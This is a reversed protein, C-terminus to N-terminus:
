PHLFSGGSNRLMWYIVDPRETVNSLALPWNIRRSTELSKMGTRDFSGSGQKVDGEDVLGKGTVSSRSGIRDAYGDGYVDRLIQRRGVRNLELLLLIHKYKWIQEMTEMPTDISLHQLTVNKHQLVDLVENLTHNSVRTPYHHGIHISDSSFHLAKLSTNNWLLDYLSSKYTRKPAAVAPNWSASDGRGDMDDYGDMSDFDMSHGEPPKCGRLILSELAVNAPPRCFSSPGGVDYHDDHLMDFLMVLGDEPINTFSLDLLKFYFADNRIISWCETEPAMEGLTINSHSRRKKTRLSLAYMLKPLISKYFLSLSRNHALALEQLYPNYQLVSVERDDEGEKWLTVQVTSCLRDILALFGAYSIDCASLDLRRINARTIFKIGRKTIRHNGEISLENLYLNNSVLEDSLMLLDMDRLGCHRLKITRLHYLHPLLSQTLSYLDVYSGFLISEEPVIRTLIFQITKLKTCSKLINKLREESLLLLTHLEFHEIRPGMTKCILDIVKMTNSNLKAGICVRKVSTNYYMARQLQQHQKMCTYMSGHCSCVSCWGGSGNNGNSGGVALGHSYNNPATSNNGQRIHNSSGGIGGLGSSLSSSSSSSAGTTSLKSIHPYADHTGLRLEEISNTYLLHCTVDIDHQIRRISGSTSSDGDGDNCTCSGNTWSMVTNLITSATTTAASADLFSSPNPHEIEIEDDFDDDYHDDDINNDNNNLVHRGAIPIRGSANDMNSAQQHHMSSSTGGGGDDDDDDDDDDVQVEEEEGGGGVGVARSSSSSFSVAGGNNNSRNVFDSYDNNNEDDDDTEDYYDYDNDNGDDSSADSSSRITKPDRLLIRPHLNPDNNLFYSVHSDYVDDDDDTRDGMINSTRTIISTSRSTTNSSSSISTSEGGDLSTNSSHIHPHLFSEQQQSLLSANARHHDGDDDVDHRTVVDADGGPGNSSGNGVPFSPTAVSLPGAALSGGGGNDRRGRRSNGELTSILRSM